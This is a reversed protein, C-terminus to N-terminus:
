NINVNTWKHKAYILWFIEKQPCNQVAKSLINEQSKFNGYTKELEIAKIWLAKKNPIIILSHEYIKRATEICGRFLSSEANELWKKKRENQPIEINM